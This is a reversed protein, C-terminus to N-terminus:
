IKTDVVMAGILVPDNIDWETITFNEIEHYTSGTVSIPKPVELWWTLDLMHVGLDILPGGGTQKEHVLRGPLTRRKKQAM